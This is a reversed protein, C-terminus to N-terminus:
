ARYFNFALVPPPLLSSVQSWPKDLLQFTFTHLFFSSFFFPPTSKPGFSETKVPAEVSLKRVNCDTENTGEKKSNYAGLEYIARRVALVTIRFFFILHLAHSMPVQSFYNDYVTPGEGSEVSTGTRLEEMQIQKKRGTALAVVDVVDVVM